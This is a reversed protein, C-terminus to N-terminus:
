GPEPPSPQVLGGGERAASPRIAGRAACVSDFLPSASILKRWEKSPPEITWSIEPSIRRIQPSQASVREGSMAEGDRIHSSRRARRDCVYSPLPKGARRATAARLRAPWSKWM